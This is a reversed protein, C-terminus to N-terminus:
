DANIYLLATSNHFPVGYVSRNIVANGQLAPFFQGLFQEKTNGDAAILGDLNTLENEIQMDLLFNASMIVAAPPKGAKISARTKTLTDDYTGTYLAAAKINPHRETFETILTRAD